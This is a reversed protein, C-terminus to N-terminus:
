FMKIKLCGVRLELKDINGDTQKKGKQLTVCRGSNCLLAMGPLIQLVKKM